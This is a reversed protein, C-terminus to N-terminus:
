KEELMKRARDRLAELDYISSPAAAENGYKLHEIFDELVSELEHALSELKAIRDQAEMEVHYLRSLEKTITDFQGIARGIKTDIQILRKDEKSM